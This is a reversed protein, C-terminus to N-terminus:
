NTEIHIIKIKLVDQLRLLTSVRIDREGSLTWSLTGATIGMEEAIKKTTKGSKKIEEKLAQNFERCRNRYNM